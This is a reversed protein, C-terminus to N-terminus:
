AAEPYTATLIHNDASVWGAVDDRFANDYGSGHIQRLAWRPTPGTGIRGCVATGSGDQRWASVADVTLNVANAGSQSDVLIVYDHGDVTETELGFISVNNADGNSYDEIRIVAPGCNDVQAGFVGLNCLNASPGLSLKLWGAECGGGTCNYLYFSVANLLSLGYGSANALMVNYLATNFGGTRLDLLDAPAPFAEKNGDLRLDRMILHHNWDTFTSEFLPGDHARRIRTGGEGTGAGNFTLGANGEVPETEDFTGVGVNVVGVHRRQSGSGFRGDADTAMRWILRRRDQDGTPGFMGGEAALVVLIGIIWKRM